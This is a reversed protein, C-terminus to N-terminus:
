RPTGPFTIFALFFVTMSFHEEPSRSKIKQYGLQISTHSTSHAFNILSAYFMLYYSVFLLLLLLLAKGSKNMLVKYVWLFLYYISSITVACFFMSRWTSFRVISKTCDCLSFKMLLDTMNVKWFYTRVFFM